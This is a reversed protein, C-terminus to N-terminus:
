YQVISSCYKFISVAEGEASLKVHFPLFFIDNQGMNMLLIILVLFVKLIYLKPFLELIIFNFLLTM